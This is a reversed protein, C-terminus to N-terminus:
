VLKLKVNLNPHNVTPGGITPLARTYAVYAAFQNKNHFGNSSVSRLILLAIVLLSALMCAMSTSASSFSSAVQRVVM